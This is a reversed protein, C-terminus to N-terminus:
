RGEFAAIVDDPLPADFDEAIRVKGKLGGFRRVVRAREMPVLRAAPKGAKAIVIEEGSAAADVLRSFHTKAEHINVTRM